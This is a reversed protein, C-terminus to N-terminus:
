WVWSPGLGLKMVLGTRTGTRVGYYGGSGLGSKIVVAWGVDFSVWGTSVGWSLGPGPGSKIVLGTGIVHGGSRVLKSM